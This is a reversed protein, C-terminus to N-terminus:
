TNTQVCSDCAKKFELRQEAEEKKLKYAELTTM